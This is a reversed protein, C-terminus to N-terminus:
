LRVGKNHSYSKASAVFCQSHQELDRPGECGEKLRKRQCQDLFGRAAAAQAVRGGERM